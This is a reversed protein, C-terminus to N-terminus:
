VLYIYLAMKKLISGTLSLGSLVPNKKIRIQIKDSKKNQRIDILARNVRKKDEDVILSEFHFDKPNNSDDFIQEKVKNSVKLIKFSDCLLIIPQDLVEFIFIESIEQAM